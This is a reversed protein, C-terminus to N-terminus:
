PTHHFPTSTLLIGGPPIATASAPGNSATTHDPSIGTSTGPASFRATATALATTLALVLLGDPPCQGLGNAGGTGHGQSLGQLHLAPM